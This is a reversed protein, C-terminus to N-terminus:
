PNHDQQPPPTLLHIMESIVVEPYIAPHKNWRLSEVSSTITDRKLPNGSMRIITFGNKDLQIKRGGNQGGFAPAHIGRIKMRFGTITGDKVEKVAKNLERVAKRKESATLESDRIMTRYRNGITTNKTPPLSDDDKRVQFADIDYYYDSSKVFHFFPETSSVLRRKFQRPTPNKKIWTIDNVLKVNKVNMAQIAFKYPILMLSGNEYKDGMNFVVSGCRKTIRVCERFVDMVADIYDEVHKEGGVECGAYERQRFYPPSTIVLDISDDPIQKLIRASDGCQITNIFPIMTKPTNKTASM